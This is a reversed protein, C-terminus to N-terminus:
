PCKYWGLQKATKRRHCNACLVDCKAIEIEIKELSYVKGVGEAITFEKENPDRHDFELVVPDVEGCVICPHSTLYTIIFKNLKEKRSKTQALKKANFGKKDFSRWERMYLSVCSKCYSGIKEGRKHFESFVKEKFCINCIKM